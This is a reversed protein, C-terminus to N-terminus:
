QAQDTLQSDDLTTSQESGILVILNLSPRKKQKERRLMRHLSLFNKSYLRIRMKFIMQLDPM